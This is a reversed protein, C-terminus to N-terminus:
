ITITEIVTRSIYYPEEKNVGTVVKVNHSGPIIGDITLTAVGKKNKVNYTKGDYTIKLNGSSDGVLSLTNVTIITKGNEAKASISVYPMKKTLKKSAYQENGDFTM